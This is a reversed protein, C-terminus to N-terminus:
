LAIWVVVLSLGLAVALGAVFLPGRPSELLPREAGHRELSLLLRRDAAAVYSRFLVWALTFLAVVYGLLARHVRRVRRAEKGRAEATGDLLFGDLADFTRPQGDVPYGVTSPSRGDASSSVVLYRPASAPLLPVTGTSTGDPGPVLPLVGSALREQETVWTFYAVPLGRASHVRAQSADVEVFLAGPVLPLRLSKTVSAGETECSWNLEVTHEWPQIWVGREATARDLQYRAGQEPSRNPSTREPRLAAGFLEFATVRAVGCRPLAVQSWFPTALVGGRVSVGTADQARSDLGRRPASSWRAWPLSPRGRALLARTPVDFVELELSAGGVEPLTVDFWGDGGTRAIVRHERTAGRRVVEVERHVLPVSGDSTSELILIRGHWPGASDTPGGYVQASLVPRAGGGVLWALAVTLM